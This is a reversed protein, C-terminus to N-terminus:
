HGNRTASVTTVHLKKFVLPWHKRLYKHLGRFAEAYVVHSEKIKSSITKFRLVGAFREVVADPRKLPVEVNAWAPSTTSRPLHNGQFLTTGSLFLTLATAVLIAISPGLWFKLM